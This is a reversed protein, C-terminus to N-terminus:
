AVREVKLAGLGKVEPCKAYSNPSCVDAIFTKGIKTSPQYIASVTNMADLRVWTKLQDDCSWGSFGGSVLVSGFQSPAFMCTVSPSQTTSYVPLSEFALDYELTAVEERVKAILPDFHRTFLEFDVGSLHVQERLRMEQLRCLYVRRIELYDQTM